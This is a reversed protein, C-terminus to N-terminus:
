TWDWIVLEWSIGNKEDIYSHLKEFGINSHAKLSRLNESAIETICYDFEDSMQLKMEKYMASFIGRSRHDKSICVQGMTFYSSERISYRNFELKDLKNFMSFLVELENRMDSLMVLAYGVVLNDHLAIIHPFPNNMKKLLELSHDCTVFGEQNKEETSINQPLNSEQLALIELLHREESVTTIIYNSM